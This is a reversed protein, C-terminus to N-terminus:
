KTEEHLLVVEAIARQSLSRTLQISPAHRMRVDVHEGFAMVPWRHPGHFQDGFGAPDVRIVKGFIAQGPRHTLEVRRLDPELLRELVEVEPKGTASSAGGSFLWLWAASGSRM